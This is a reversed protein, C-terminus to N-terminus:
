NVQELYKEYADVDSVIESVHVIHALGTQADHGYVVENDTPLGAFASRMAYKLAAPNGNCNMWSTGMVNEQWDEIVFTKGSLNDPGPKCSLVVTQGALPHKDRKM